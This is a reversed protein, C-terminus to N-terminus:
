IDVNKNYSTTTPSKDLECTKIVGDLRGVMVHQELTVQIVHVHTLEVLRMVSDMLVHIRTVHTM